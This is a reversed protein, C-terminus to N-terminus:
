PFRVEVLTGLGEASHLKIEANHALVGHKVIALGLGTGGTARSRSRDVCFFREFVKEHLHKPIGVGTDQVTLLLKDGDCGIGVVVEGGSDTYRIANETLNYVIKALLSPIGVIRTDAVLVRLGLSVGRGQAFSALGEIAERAFVALDVEEMTVPSDMGGGEEDLQSLTIIDDVLTILRTAEEHILRIFRTADEPAVTGQEMLEAYGNIVTLPTKLEHSVNATFERRQIDAQHWETIDLVLLAAGDPDGDKLVPSTLLQHTRGEQEFFAQSREGRLAAEVVRQIHESRNLALLHKGIADAAPLGFLRVAADNIFLVRGQADTLVLGERMSGTVADFESQRLDLEATREAIERYSSNLHGLLPSLESYTENSLPEEFNLKDLPSLTRKATLRAGIAAIVAVAVLILIGPPLATAMHGLLNKQTGAVRLVTGDPLLRALYITEEDFTKSHRSAVGNGKSLADLVEPRDLHNELPAGDAAMSDYLVTGEAAIWTIRIDRVTLSELYRAEDDTAPLAEEIIDAVNLLERRLQSDLIMYVLGM